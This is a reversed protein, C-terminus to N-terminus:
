LSYKLYRYLKEKARKLTRSVTSKHLGLEKGIETVKMGDFFFLSVVEKQRPTLEDVATMLNKRLRYMREDNTGAEENQWNQLAAINLLDYNGSGGPKSTKRTGPM